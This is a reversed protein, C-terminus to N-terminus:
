KKPKVPCSLQQPGGFFSRIIETMKKQKPFHVNTKALLFQIKKPFKAYCQIERPRKHGTLDLTTPRARQELEEVPPKSHTIESRSSAAQSPYPHTHYLCLSWPTATVQWTQKSHHSWTHPWCSWCSEKTVLNHKHNM